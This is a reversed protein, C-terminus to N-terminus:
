RQASFFETVDCGTAPYSASPPGWTSVDVASSSRAQTVQAPISGRQLFLLFFSTATLTRVYVVSSTLHKGALVLHQYNFSCILIDHLAAKAFSSHDFRM